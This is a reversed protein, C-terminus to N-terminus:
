CLQLTNLRTYSHRSIIDICYVLRYSTGMVSLSKLFLMDNLHQCGLLYSSSFEGPSIPDVFKKGQEMAFKYEHKDKQILAHLSVEASSKDLGTVRGTFFSPCLLMYNDEPHGFTEAILIIM